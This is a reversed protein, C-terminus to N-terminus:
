RPKALAALLYDAVLIANGALESPKDGSFGHDARAGALAAAITIAAYQRLTM